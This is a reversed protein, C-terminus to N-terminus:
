EEESKCIIASAAKEVAQTIGHYCGCRCIHGSLGVKIEDQSPNPNQNLLAHAELVLGPTCFGCQMATGYGPESTEIFAKVVHDNADYFEITKVECGDADVALLMCSLVSKDNLLVTCSGCAGQECSVRVGTLGLRERLLTALSDEANIDAGVRFQYDRGNVMIKLVDKEMKGESEFDNLTSSRFSNRQIQIQIM